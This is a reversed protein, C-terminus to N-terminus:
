LSPIALRPPEFQELCGALCEYEDMSMHYEFANGGYLFRTIGGGHIHEVVRSAADFDITRRPGDRRPLPPVAYVGRLDHATLQQDSM